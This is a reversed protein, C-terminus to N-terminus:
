KWSAYERVAKLAKLLSQETQYPFEMYESLTVILIGRGDGTTHLIATDKMETRLLNDYYYGTRITLGLTQVLHMLEQYYGM